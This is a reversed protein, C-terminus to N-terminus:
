RISSWRPLSGNPIRPSCICCSTAGWSHGIVVARDWGLGDLVAVVDGVQTPVDFPAGATSPPLGRQQYAAVQYGDCIEDVLAQLYTWPLGPGGHLLLVPDGHGVVWGRLLGGDVGVEFSDRRVSALRAPNGAPGLDSIPGRQNRRGM